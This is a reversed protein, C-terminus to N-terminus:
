VKVFYQIAENWSDLLTKAVTSQTYHFHDQVIHKLTTIDKDQLPDLDVKQTNCLSPFRGCRSRCFYKVKGRYKKAFVYVTWVYPGSTFRTIIGRTMPDNKGTM